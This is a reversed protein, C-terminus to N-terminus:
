ARSRRAVYGYYNSAGFFVGAASDGLLSDAWANAEQETMAGSKPVLRRFSEIAPVWFDAKGVEAIVYPFSAILQLGAAQLLHPMQRMVRPSTVVGSIIAEDYAKGKTPDVHGFTISAYDGDFIGIMGGPRVLRAAERLVALPDDVHSVLTHAVVADFTGDALDLERSDSSRFEVRSDLGENAALQAAKQALAPSLDIGLVRGSFGHRRAIARAAVGTGCGLDIVINAEDIQMADLYDQLMKQFLPHKGRAELRTVIVQVLSDDLKDTGAYPDSSKMDGSGVTADRTRSAAADAIRVDRIETGGARSRVLFRTTFACENHAEQAAPPVSEGFPYDHEGWV